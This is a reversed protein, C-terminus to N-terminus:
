SPNWFYSSSYGNGSNVIVKINKVCVYTPVLKFSKLEAIIRINRHNRNQIWIAPLLNELLQKLCSRPFNIRDLKRIAFPQKIAGQIKPSLRPLGKDKHIGALFLTNRQFLSYSIDSSYSHKSKFFEHFWPM